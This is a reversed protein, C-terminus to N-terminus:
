IMILVVQESINIIIYQEMLKFLMVYNQAWSIYRQTITAILKEMEIAIKLGNQHINKFLKM